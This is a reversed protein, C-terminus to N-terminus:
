LENQQIFPPIIKAELLAGLPRETLQRTVQELLSGKNDSIIIRAVSEFLLRDESSIQDASRVYINGLKEQGQRGAEATILGLIQEQL